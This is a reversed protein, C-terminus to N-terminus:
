ESTIAARQVLRIRNPSRAELSDRILRRRMGRMQETHIELEQALIVMELSDKAKEGLEAARENQRLMLREVEATLRQYTASRVDRMGLLSSHVQSSAAQLYASTVANVIATLEKSAWEPGRLRIALLESDSPFGVDLNESLWAAPDQKSMLTPLSAIGPNGLAPDIVHSSKLLVLQTSKFREFESEDFHNTSEDGLLSPQVTAVEVLATAVVYEPQVLWALALCAVTVFAFLALLSFRLRLKPRSPAQALEDLDSMADGVAAQSM